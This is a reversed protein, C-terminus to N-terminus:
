MSLASLWIRKMEKVYHQYYADNVDSHVIDRECDLCIFQGCIRIGQAREAHCIICASLAQPKSEM